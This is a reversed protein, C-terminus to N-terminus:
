KKYIDPIEPRGVGVTVNVRWDVNNTYLHRFDFPQQAWVRFINGEQWTNGASTYDCMRLIHKNGAEDKCPVDFTMWIAPTEPNEVLQVDIYNDTDRMFEYRYMPPETVGDRRPILRSDFALVIPGRVIAADGVGSPADVVRARMDLEVEIKDNDNWTREISAYTGPLIYGDYPEGNIKIATRKSWQPIRLELAFAESQPLNVTAAVNGQVPYESEMNIKLPQGSPTKVTSNMKGYLNIAAGDATTMVAWSPTIMLGRPGNAVCCSMVVDPFQQHSHVREGMLGAYYSWWEGKPSMSALLANYLSTELEDAYRSDGTLRLM